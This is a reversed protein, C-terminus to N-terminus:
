ICTCEPSIAFGFICRAGKCYPARDVGCTASCGETSGLLCDIGPATCSNVTDPPDPPRRNRQAEVLAPVAALVLALSVCRVLRTKMPKRWEHTL